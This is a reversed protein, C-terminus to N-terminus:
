LEMIFFSCLFLNGSSTSQDQHRQHLLLGMKWPLMKWKFKTFRYFTVMFFEKPAVQIERHPNNTPSKRGEGSDFLETQIWAAWFMLSWGLPFVCCSNCVSFCPNIIHPFHGGKRVYSVHIRGRPLSGQSSRGLFFFFFTNTIVPIEVHTQKQIILGIRSNHQAWAAHSVFLFVLFFHFAFRNTLHPYPM